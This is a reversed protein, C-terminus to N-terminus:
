SGSGKRKVGTVPVPEFVEPMARIFQYIAGLKEKSIGAEDNTEDDDDCGSFEDDDDEYEDNDNEISMARDFWNIAIPLVKLDWEFFPQMDFHRHHKLIKKIAVEGKDDSSSNLALLTYLDAPRVDAPIDLSGLGELTHNSLFTKNISSTDCLVNSFSSWGESTIGNGFYLYLTKLKSNSTLANAFIFAGEDGINNYSVDLKELGSNPQELLVALSQCGQVTINRNHCLHLIALSSNNTLAGVLADVGEDDIYNGNLNLSHLRTMTCRLLTALATCENRRINMALLELNELQPHTSMAEIVEVSQEDGM